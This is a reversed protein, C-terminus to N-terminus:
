LRFPRIHTCNKLGTRKNGLDSVGDQVM